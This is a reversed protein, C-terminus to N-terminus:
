DETHTHTAPTLGTWSKFMNIFDHDKMIEHTDTISPLMSLWYVSLIIGAKTKHIYFYLSM